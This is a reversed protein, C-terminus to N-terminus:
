MTTLGYMIQVVGGAEPWSVTAATHLAAQWGTWRHPSDHGAGDISDGHNVEWIQCSFRQTSLIAFVAPSHLAVPWPVPLAQLPDATSMLALDLNSLSRLCTCLHVQTVATHGSGVNDARHNQVTDHRGKAYPPLLRKIPNVTEAWNQGKKPMLLEFKLVKGVSSCTCNVLNHGMLDVSFEWPGWGGPTSEWALPLKQPHQAM